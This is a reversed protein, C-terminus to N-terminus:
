TANCLVRVWSRIPWTKFDVYERCCFSFFLFHWSVNYKVLYPWRKGVLQFNSKIDLVTRVPKRLKQAALATAAAIQAPPTIKAGYAGGM